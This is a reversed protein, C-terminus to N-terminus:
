CKFIPLKQEFALNRCEKSYHFTRAGAPRCKTHSCPAPFCSGGQQKGKVQGAGRFNECQATELGPGLVVSTPLKIYFNLWKEIEKM